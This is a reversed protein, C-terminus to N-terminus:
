KGLSLVKTETGSELTLTNASIAKVRFEGIQDGVYVTQGNVIACPRAPNYAIGQLKPLAPTPPVAATTGTAPPTSTKTSSTPSTEPAASAVATVTGPHTQLQKPIQPAATIKNQRHQSLALGLFFCAAALLLMAIIPLFRSAGSRIKVERQVPMLPAAGPSNKPPTQKARKLADNIQSM